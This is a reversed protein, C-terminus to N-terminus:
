LAIDGVVCEQNGSRQTCYTMVIQFNKEDIDKAWFTFNYATNDSDSVIETKFDGVRFSDLTQTPKGSRAAPNMDFFDYEGNQYSVTHEFALVVGKYEIYKGNENSKVELKQM